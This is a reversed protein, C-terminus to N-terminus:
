DGLYKTQFTHKGPTAWTYTLTYSGDADTIATIGSDEGDVFFHITKGPIGNGSSDLLKGTFKTTEGKDCTIESPNLTLTTPELVTATGLPSESPKYAGIGRL